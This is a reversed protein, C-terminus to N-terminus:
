SPDSGDCDCPWAARVLTSGVRRCGCVKGIHPKHRCRLCVPRNRFSDADQCTAFHSTARHEDDALEEGDKLVRYTFRLGAKRVALNGEHRCAEGPGDRGDVPPVDLPMLTGTQWHPVRM